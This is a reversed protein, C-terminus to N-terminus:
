CPREALLEILIQDAIREPSERDTSLHRVSPGDGATLRAIVHRYGGRDRALFDRAEEDSLGQIRHRKSRKRVREILARREDLYKRSEEVYRMVGPGYKGEPSM